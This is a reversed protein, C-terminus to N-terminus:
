LVLNPQVISGARAVRDVILANPASLSTKRDLHFKAEGPLGTQPESQKRYSLGGRM